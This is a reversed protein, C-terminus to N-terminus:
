SVYNRWWKKAGTSLFAISQCGGNLGAGVSELVIRALMSDTLAVRGSFQAGELGVLDAWSFQKTYRSPLLSSCRM